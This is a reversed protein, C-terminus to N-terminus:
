REPRIRIAQGGGPALEIPLRTTSDVPHSSIVVPLPNDRWHAGPGDAYIEAVYRQGATLFSLPVEFSRAEEDTIAGIFWDNTDRQKRAVVVYDGIKGELVRTTDWDVGVDRIFQFAPQGAYNEPLDAAMQLPSYLVVYLALQKALTTRPRAEHPQRPTGTPREILLDFIGPTFDMPGALMRTFFLITEHEPPNGGEGGWANFEQGRAGERSLINPWTRREGTDKIPEHVNIMIGNRAATEIVRRHHRVMFQSQHAHGHETLDGVYGTKVARVGHRRYLEMAPELQREYNDIMTATEHHGILTVGKQKAYRAVEPLDFDPYARTFSFNAKGTNFWDIDWGLNWGEVLVGGFGNAAAFDIYRKTNATTAGHKPGSGWTETGIHLSWWIGVYKMPDIWSTNEIRSPPNLKLTLTSPALDEPRDALQITRWPTVFPARGRVAVGDAWRALTSRLTRGGLNVLYMGAYDVLNAEHIVVQTGNSMQLTLPTHVTDLRSVPGSSYLIEQRDPEPKNAPIWWARANDALAFETLEEMMEFDAFGASEALEYRFGVGDDFVRFAVAFRRGPARDEAVQVRLENYHDRVSAVEGWPQTWTQDASDRTVSTIRLGNHLSDARFLFGLRSPLLVAQGDRRVSYYLGGDRSEVTVENRGDPSRVRQESQTTAPTASAAFAAGLMLPHALNRLRRQMEM